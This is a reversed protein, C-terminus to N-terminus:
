LNKLKLILLIFINVMTKASDQRKFEPKPPLDSSSRINCKEILKM